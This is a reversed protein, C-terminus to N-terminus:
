PDARVIRPQFVLEVGEFAQQEALLANPTLVVVQRGLRQAALAPIMYAITKGCGVDGSLMRRMPYPRALDAVIERIALLQDRTVRYPLAALLEDVPSSPIPLASAPVTQRTKSRRAAEVISFAALRRAAALAQEGAELSTPAHVSLLLTRLSPMSVRAGALIAAESTGPFAALLDSLTDELHHALAYRTADLIAGDAVVGRRKEYEPVVKGLWTPPVPTPSGIQLRDGWAQLSGLVHLRSGPRANKWTAVDTGAVIFVTLHVIHRGDTASLCLRTPQQRMVAPDVVVLSFLRPGPAPDEALVAQITTPRSYDRYGTPLCLLPQGWRDIGLRHLRELLHRPSPDGSASATAAM